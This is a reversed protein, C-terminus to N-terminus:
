SSFIFICSFVFVSYIEVRLFKLIIEDSIKCLFFLLLPLIPFFSFILLTLDFYVSEGIEKVVLILFLYIMDDLSFYVPINIM